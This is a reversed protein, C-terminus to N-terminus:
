TNKGQIEQVRRRLIKGNGTYEGKIFVKFVIYGIVSTTLVLWSNMMLAIGPFIFLIIAAYLPNCCLSFTGSTVLRSEKLGKLLNPITIFYFVLGGALIVLGTYFLVKNKDDFFNFTEKFVLSLIITVALWPLVYIGIKPGVGFFDLKNM